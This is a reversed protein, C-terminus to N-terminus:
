RLLTGFFPTQTLTQMDCLVLAADARQALPALTGEFYRPDVALIRYHRALFPLLSNAFSDKIVLLVPREDENGRDIELLGCNGGLFLSYQDTGLLKEEDYLGQFPAPETDRMVRYDCDGEYHWISVTDPFIQPVGAAAASSGCFSESVTKKCFSSEPYPSYGLSHSLRTYAFYAGESTWHHDTRYWQADDTADLFTVADAPLQEWVVRERATDYLMPLVERRVDIRRPAIAVSLSTEGLIRRLRPLAALNQGYIRENVALRRCLSGDRCLMVGHCEGRLLLLESAAYAARCAGRFPFREEAYRDAAATYAGSALDRASFAPFAALSRNEALSLRPSPFFSLGLSGILLIGTAAILLFKDGLAHKKM